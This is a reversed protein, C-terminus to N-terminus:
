DRNTELYHSATDRIMALSENRLDRPIDLNALQVIGHRIAQSLLQASEHKAHEMCAVLEADM